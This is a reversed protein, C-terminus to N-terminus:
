HRRKDYLIVKGNQYIFELTEPDIQTDNLDTEWSEGTELIEFKQM